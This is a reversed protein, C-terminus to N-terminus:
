EHYMWKGQKKTQDIKQLKNLDHKQLEPNKVNEKVSVDNLGSILYSDTFPFMRIEYVKNLYPTQHSKKFAIDSSM